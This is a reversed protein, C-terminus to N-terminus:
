IVTNTGGGCVLFVPQFFPLGGGGTSNKLRM